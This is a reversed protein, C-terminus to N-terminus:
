IWRQVQQPEDTAQWCHSQGVHRPKAPVCRLPDAEAGAYETDSEESDEGILRRSTARALLRSGADADPCLLLEKSRNCGNAAVHLGRSICVPLQDGQSASMQPSALSSRLTQHRRRPEHQWVPDMQLAERAQGRQGQRSRAQLMCQQVPQALSHQEVHQVPQSCPLHKNNALELAQLLSQAKSDIALMCEQQQAEVELLMRQREEEAQLAMTNIYAACAQSCGCFPCGSAVAAQWLM